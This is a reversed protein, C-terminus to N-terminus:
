KEKGEIYVQSLDYYGGFNNFTSGKVYNKRFSNIDRYFSPSAAVEENVLINEAKKYLDIRKAPDAETAAKTVLEDYEKSSFHGKNNSGNGLFVNFYSSVDDYDPGWGSGGIDFEGKDLMDYFTTDDPTFVTELTIGFTEKYLKTMYDSLDSTITVKPGLLYKIKVSSAEVGLDKLGEAMLKRAEEKNPKLPEPVEKRYVKGSCDVNDGVMGYAPLNRKYVVDLMEKRDLAMSLAKRVKKNKLVGNQLNYYDYLVTNEKGTVLTVEGSEAKKKLRALDDKSAGTIDLEGSEFMKVLTAQENIIPCDAEELKVSKANWYKPNKKYVIKSGKQYDAVVFPGNYVM